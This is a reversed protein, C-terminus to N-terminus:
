ALLIKEIPLRRSKPPEVSFGIKFILWINEIGFEKEIKEAVPRNTV